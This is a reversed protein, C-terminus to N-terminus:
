LEISQVTKLSFFISIKISPFKVKESQAPAHPDKMVVATRPDKQVPRAWPSEYGGLFIPRCNAM